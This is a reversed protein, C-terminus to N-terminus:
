FAGNWRCTVYQALFGAALLVAEGEFFTWAFVPLPGCHLPLEKLHM